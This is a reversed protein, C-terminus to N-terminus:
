KSRSGFSVRGDRRYGTKGDVYVFGEKGCGAPCTEDEFEEVNQKEERKKKRDEIIKDIIKGITLHCLLIIGAFMKKIPKQVLTVFRWILKKLISILKRNLNLMLRGLTFYYLLFGGAMGLFTMGRFVGGSSYMLLIAACGVGIWFIVDTIFTVVYILVSSGVSAKEESKDYKVGCLMKFARIIDYVTGFAGGCLISYFLLAALEGQSFNIMKEVSSDERKSPVIRM